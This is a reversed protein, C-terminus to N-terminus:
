ALREMLAQAEGVEPMPAFGEELARALLAHAEVPQAYGSASLSAARNAVM